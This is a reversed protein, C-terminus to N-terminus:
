IRIEDYCYPVCQPISSRLDFIKKELNGGLIIFSSM